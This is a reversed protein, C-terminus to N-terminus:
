RLEIPPAFEMGNVDQAIQRWAERYDPYRANFQLRERIKTNTLRYSATLVELTVAGVALKAMFAPVHKPPPAHLMAAAYPWLDRMRVPEDDVVNFTHAAASLPDALACVVAHAADAAHIMSIFAEGAGIIPMMGRRMAAISQQIHWSDASTVAGFRFVAGAPSARVQDEMELTTRLFAHQSRPAEEDMWEDGRSTCIYGVSEQVFLRVEVERAASLLNRTGDIRIRDNMEWDSPNIRLKLPISTALNVVADPRYARFLNSMTERDLVDGRVANAGMNEVSLLKAPTRALGYVSHGAAALRPLLARGLVGTAGAVFVRM